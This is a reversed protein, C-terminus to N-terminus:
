MNEPDLLMALSTFISDLMSCPGNIHVWLHRGNVQLAYSIAVHKDARICSLLPIGVARPGVWTKSNPCCSWVQPSQGIHSVHLIFSPLRFYIHCSANTLKYVRYFRFEVAEGMSESNLDPLLVRNSRLSGSKDILQSKCIAHTLQLNISAMMSEKLGCTLCDGSGSFM